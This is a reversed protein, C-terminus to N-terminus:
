DVLKGYKGSVWGNQNDFSVLHWGSESTQGQYVLKDESHAVGLIKGSTNPATRVYCQKGKEIQVYRAKEPEVGPERADLAATLADRTAADYKGTVALGNDQQFKKVAKETGNGFEGDAGYSGCSYGMSILMSQMEKVDPGETYNYLVRVTSEGACLALHTANDYQGTVTLGKDKQFKRVAMETCDGFEGDAGYSGLDYGLSILKLQLERVDAGETYNKLVRDGLKQEGSSSTPADFAMGAIATYDVSGYGDIYTSTLKYSKKKVGGGNTVLASANSTNGEITYVKSSTVKIVIGVHGIRGKASSYFYIVDGRKPTGKGRPIYRNRKKFANSGTPTYNTFTYILLKAAELGFASVFCWDVFNQCWQDNIGASKAWARMDRNYKTYNKSGANATKDDLDKNSKKELYGIEAEAVAILKDIANMDTGGQTKEDTTSAKGTFFSLPKRGSLVDMDVDGKIGPLRGKDSYQWIDHPMTPKYKEGYGPIWIYAYKEYDLKWSHYKQQAVYLAVRIDGPGYALALRRLEDEFAQALKPADKNAIGWGAECDLTWFLPWCGGAQVSRFFLEADRRAEAESKCYLFHFAHFPVDHGTAGKVNRVYFPDTGNAFLGSAKIIVFDLHPALKDWDIAGQHKSVDCIM